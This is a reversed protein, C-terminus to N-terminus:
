GYKEFKEKSICEVSYLNYTALLALIRANEYDICTLVM